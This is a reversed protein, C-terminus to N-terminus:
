LLGSIVGGPRVFGDFDEHGVGVEEGLFDGGMIGVFAYFFNRRVNMPLFSVGRQEKKCIRGVGFEPGGVGGVVLLLRM